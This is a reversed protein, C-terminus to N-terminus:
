DRTLEEMVEQWVGEKKLRSFWQFASAMLQSSTPMKKWSYPTGLKLLIVDVIERLCRPPHGPRGRHPMRVNLIRDVRNWQDDNMPGAFGRSRLLEEVAIPATGRHTRPPCAQLLFEKAALGNAFEFPEELPSLRRAVLQAVMLRDGARRARISMDVIAKPLAMDLRGDLANRYVSGWAKHASPYSLMWEFRSVTNPIKHAATRMNRHPTLTTKLSRFLM